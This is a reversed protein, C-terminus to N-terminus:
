QVAGALLAMLADADLKASVEGGELLSEALDRKRSHLGVIQEEISNEAVLRYITVPRQQGMRYARDSAQDEVAPNWWPDLHIVYDAATLNLGTGGAKLSILFIEGTGAQFANVRREREKAPVSGDLYQYAIHKEDLLRSVISLQDVYQSFVLAKHGNELLEEVLTTFAQLKSGPLVSDPVVLSPHCCFRRLRTIETLIQFSRGAGSASDSVNVLAQQRLAEYLHAEEDSLPVKYTIETRAPLEDLVQSKLRRLIFPQILAKLARRAAADGQEIPTAFRSSFSEQSGLLSPNIFRFLSWLEGLHNEMPTGTAVVRFNAQLGMVAQSRKTQANKIAQAEDLVVSNWSCAAFAASDQQLLGYSTIVLDGPGLDALSREQQYLHLKLQPTFRRSEALWNLTVSTPAVVLQPGDAARQLLLALIQVTKGLGMDDALCAGVGWEALRALWIFGEHQYARLDAQLTRPLQPQYDRLSQLKQLHAQWSNDATFEGVEGALGALIPTTLPNLRLGQDTVRDALHTLEDLRKRLTDDLALWDREDLKIFRGPNAKMIELLQRLRLVKGDDFAIEGQLLFWDGQKRLGLKLENLKLRGKLRMREGEPWVCQVQKGDLAHLEGLVQLADQPQDLQWEQGDSTANALGPCAQLVQQLVQREGALDRSVQLPKGDREGLVNQAGQGPRFWSSEALPRVLLQLRLGEALPLLHAYLCTDAQAHDIQAALEPLDSHIPLLPTIASIADILQAKGSQPVSLGDGIIKGIQRLDSNLSYVQLRTPTQRHLYYTDDTVIGEPELHLHIQGDGAAQLRLSAHGAELEVRVDPADYWFLAPHGVLRPLAVGLPLEYEVHSYYPQSAQIVSIAQRDQECLFDMRDAEEMLRKLAVPRGKSWQGKSGLKQERPELQSSYRGSNILWALRTTKKAAASAPANTPKLQSLASLAHQWAEQRQLLSALPKLAAEHHLDRLTRPVGFQLAILADFEAALWAYGWQDLEDRYAQLTTCWGQERASPADLWYLALALMLGDLGNLASSRLYSLDPKDGQLQELLKRLVPYARGYNEKEGLALAQKLAAHHQSDNEAILALCYLANLLPPLDIKRKKTQRRQDTLWARLLLLAESVQGRLMLHLSQYTLPFDQGGCQQLTEWDGRWVAQQILQLGLARSPHLAMEHRALAYSESVPGPLINNLCLHDQLLVERVVQDLQGFVERGAADAQLLQMPHQAAWEAMNFLRDSLYLSQQLLKGNGSLLNLWMEQLARPKGPTQWQGLAPLSASIQQLRLTGDAAGLLSLLVSNRRQAPVVFYQGENRQEVEVWGQDQLSQLLGPLSTADLLKGDTDSIGMTRLLKLLSTKGKGPFATALAYLLARCNDPLTDPSLPKSHM